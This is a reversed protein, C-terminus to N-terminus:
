CASSASLGHPHAASAPAQRSSTCASSGAGSAGALQAARRIVHEGEAEGTLVAVVREAPAGSRTPRVPRTAAAEVHNRGELWGLAFERLAVLHESSYHGALASTAEGHAFVAGQAIRRRLVGPPVDILEIREAAAVFVDPVTERATVGILSEVADSLSELHQVNLNTFVDVGATLLEEVDQWRKAFRCGPANTHALEDVLAVAPHRDLLGDLDMEYLEMGRYSIERPPLSELAAARAVLDPRDHTELVGVLVEVGDEALRLGEELMAFTKGVGPAAGLFVSLHGRGAQPREASSTM